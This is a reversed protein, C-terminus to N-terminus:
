RYALCDLNGLEPKNRAAVLAREEDQRPRTRELLPRRLREDVRLRPNMPVDDLENRDVVV